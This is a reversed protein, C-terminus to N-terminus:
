QREQQTSLVRRDACDGIEFGAGSTDSRDRVDWSADNKELALMM